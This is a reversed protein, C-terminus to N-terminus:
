RRAEGLFTEHGALALLVALLALIKVDL